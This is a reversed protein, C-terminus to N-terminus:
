GPGKRDKLSLIAEKCMDEFSADSKNAMKGTFFLYLYYTYIHSLIRGFVWFFLNILSQFYDFQFRNSSQTKSKAGCAFHVLFLQWSCFDNAFGFFHIGMAAIAYRSLTIGLWGTAVLLFFINKLRSAFAECMKKQKKTPNKEKRYWSLHNVNMKTIALKALHWM